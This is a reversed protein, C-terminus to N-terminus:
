SEFLDKQPFVLRGMVGPVHWFKECGKNALTGWEGSKGRLSKLWDTMLRLQEVTSRTATGLGSGKFKKKKLRYNIKPQVTDKNTKPHVKELWPLSPSRKTASYPSGNCHRRKNCLVPELCLPRLLQLVQAWYNHCLRRIAGLCTSEEWVLSWVQVLLCIGIRQVVLSM